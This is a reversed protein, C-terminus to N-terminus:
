PYPTYGLATALGTYGYYAGPQDLPPRHPLLHGRGQAGVPTYLDAWSAGPVSAKAQELIATQSANPAGAPLRDAWICAQTPILSFTM